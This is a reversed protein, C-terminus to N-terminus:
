SLTHYQKDPPNGDVESDTKPNVIQYIRELSLETQPSVKGSNWSLGRHAHTYNPWYHADYRLDDDTYDEVQKVSELHKGSLLYSKKTGANKRIENDAVQMLMKVESFPKPMNGFIFLFEPPAYRDIYFHDDIYILGLKRMQTAQAEFEDMYDQWADSFAFKSMDNAHMKIGANGVLAGVGYKNEILVPRYAGGGLGILGVMDFQPLHRQEKFLTKAIKEPIRVEIDVICFYGANNKRLLRQQFKREEANKAKSEIAKKRAAFTGTIIKSDNINCIAASCDGAYGYDPDISGIYKEASAKVALLRLGLYYITIYGNRIQLSLGADAKVAKLIPNLIGTEHALDHLFKNSIKRPIVEM